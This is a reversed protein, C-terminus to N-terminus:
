RPPRHPDREYRHSGYTIRGIKAANSRTGGDEQLRRAIQAGPPAAVNRFTTSGSDDRPEDGRRDERERQRETVVDDAPPFDLQEAVGDVRRAAGRVVQRQRRRERDHGITIM